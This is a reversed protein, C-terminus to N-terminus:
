GKFPYKYEAPPFNADYLFGTKWFLAKQLITRDPSNIWKAYNWKYFNSYGFHDGGTAIFDMMDLTMVINHVGEHSQAYTRVKHEILSSTIILSLCLIITAMIKIM